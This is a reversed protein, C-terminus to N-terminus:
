VILSIKGLLSDEYDSFIRHTTEFFREKEKRLKCERRQVRSLRAVTVLKTHEPVSMLLLNTITESNASHVPLHIIALVLFNPSGM